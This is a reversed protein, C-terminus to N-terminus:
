VGTKLLTLAEFNVVDGGVRKRAAFEVFPKKSYPDRLITLGLRDIIQYAANWDGFAISLSGAVMEPMDEADHVPYGLLRDPQGQVLGPQWLYNGRDDKLTRVRLQVSRPMLWAANARYAAKLSYVVALLADATGSGDPFGTGAGSMLQRIAEGQEGAPYTLYGRPQGRGTGKVFAAGETRAFLTALKDGLWTDINIASDELLKQTVLPSASLEHVVIRKKGLQPTKTEARPSVEDVWVAGAEDADILMEVETGSVTQVNALGRLPSVEFIKRVVRDSIQTPVLYGGDPDSGVSLAKRQLTKLNADEGTRAWNDFATKYERQETTPQRGTADLAGSTRKFATEIADLRDHMGDIAEVSKVATEVATLRTALQRTDNGIRKIEATAVALVDDPDM